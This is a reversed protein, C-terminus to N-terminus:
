KAGLVKHSFADCFSDIFTDVENRDAKHHSIFVKGKVSSM